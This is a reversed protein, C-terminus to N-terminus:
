KHWKFEFASNYTPYDFAARWNSWWKKKVFSFKQLVRLYALFSIVEPYQFNCM